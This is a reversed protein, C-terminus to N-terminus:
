KKRRKFWFYIAAGIVVIVALILLNSTENGATAKGTIPLSSLEIHITKEVTHRDGNLDTYSINVPANFEKLNSTLKFDAITFDGSELNGLFSTTSGTIQFIDQPILTVSVALARNLGINAISISIADGSISQLSTEFDTSPDKIEIVVTQQSITCTSSQCSETQFIISYFGKKADEPVFIKVPVIISDGVSLSGFSESQLQGIQLPSDASLLRMKISNIGTDGSNTLKMNLVGDGGPYLSSPTTTTQVSISVIAFVVQFTLLFAVMAILVYKM